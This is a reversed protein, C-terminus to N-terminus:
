AFQDRAEGSESIVDPPLSLVSECLAVSCGRRMQSPAQPTTIGALDLRATHWLTFSQNIVRFRQTGLHRAINCLTFLRSKAWFFTVRITRRDDAFCFSITLTESPALVVITAKTVFGRQDLFLNPCSHHSGDLLRRKCPRHREITDTNM